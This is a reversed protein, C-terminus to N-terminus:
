SKLKVALELRRKDEELAQVMKEKKVLVAHTARLEAQLKEQLAERVAEEKTVQLELGRVRAGTTAKLELIRRQLRGLVLGDETRDRVAERAVQQQQRVARNLGDRAARAKELEERSRRAEDEAEVKERTLDLM